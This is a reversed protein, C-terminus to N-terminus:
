DIVLHTQMSEKSSYAEGADGSSATLSLLHQQGGLLGIYVIPAVRMCVFLNDTDSVSSTVFPAPQNRQVKFPAFAFSDNRKVVHREFVRAADAL